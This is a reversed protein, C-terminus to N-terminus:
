GPAETPVVTVTFSIVGVISFTNSSEEGRDAAPDRTPVWLPPREFGVMMRSDASDKRLGMVMVGM